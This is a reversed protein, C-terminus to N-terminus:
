DIRNVKSKKKNRSKNSFQIIDDGNKEEKENSLFFYNCCLCYKENKQEQEYDFDWVHIGQQCMCKNDVM